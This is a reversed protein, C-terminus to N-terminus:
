ESLPQWVLRYRVGTSTPRKHLEANIADVQREAAQLLRQIEAAIEAQLHNELVTREKASLLEGRQAIEEALRKALRDPRERRNQYVIDVRFGWDSPDAQAQHGLAGLARQLETLEEATQRQVRAWTEEDDKLNSLEQEARRALTLAPDITWPSGLDPLEIHPLGASLLGTGAFQQLKSITQARAEGREQLVVNATEAQQGAIARAEGAKRLTDGALKLVAEGTRVAERAETLQQQLEEVKAGVTERLVDLRASADEMEIRTAALDEERQKVDSRAELERTRQRQADPLALRFEHAAQELRAQADRYHDLAAEVAPLADPMEPLRLDMADAARLERSAKLAQEAGRCRTDADALKESALRATVAAATAAMHTGRL